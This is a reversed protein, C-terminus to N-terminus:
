FPKRFVIYDAPKSVLKKSFFGLALVLGIVGVTMFAVIYVIINPAKSSSIKDKATEHVEELQVSAQAEQRYQPQNAAAVSLKKEPPSFVPKNKTKSEQQKYQDFAKEFFRIEKKQTELEKIGKIIIDLDQIYNSNRNASPFIRNDLNRINADPEGQSAERIKSINSGYHLIAAECKRAIQSYQRHPNKSVGQCEAKYKSEFNEMLAKIEDLDAQAKEALREIEDHKSVIKTRESELAKQEAQYSLEGLANAFEGLLQREDGSPVSIKLKALNQGRPSVANKFENLDYIQRGQDPLERTGIWVFGESADKEQLNTTFTVDWGMALYQPNKASKIGSESTLARLEEIPNDGDEIYRPPEDWRDKWKGLEEWKKIIFAPSPLGRWENEDFIMHHAIHNSRGTHDAGADVIRSLVRYEADRLPLKTYRHIVPNTLDSTQGPLVLHTYYSLQELPLILGERLDRSRAVTCNGRQGAILGQPASTYILQSPM